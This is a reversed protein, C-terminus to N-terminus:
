NRIVAACCRCTAACIRRAGVSSGSLASLNARFWSNIATAISARCAADLHPAGVRRLHAVQHGHDVVAAPHDGDVTGAEGRGALAVQKQGVEDGGAPDSWHRLKVIAERARCCLSGDGAFLRVHQPAHVIGLDLGRAVCQRRLRGHDLGQGGLGLALGAERPERGLRGVTDGRDAFGIPPRVALGIDEAGELTHEVVAVIAQQALDRHDAPALRQHTIGMGAELFQQVVRPAGEDGAAAASRGHEVIHHSFSEAFRRTIRAGSAVQLGPPPHCVFEDVEEVRGAAVDHLPFVVQRLVM